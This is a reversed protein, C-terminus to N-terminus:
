EWKITLLSGIEGPGALKANAHIVNVTVERKEPLNILRHNINCQDNYIEKYNFTYITM